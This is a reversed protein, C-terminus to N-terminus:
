QFSKEINSIRKSNVEYDFSIESRSDETDLNVICKVLYKSKNSYQSINYIKKLVKM